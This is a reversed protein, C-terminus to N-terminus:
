PGALSALLPVYQARYARMSYRREV